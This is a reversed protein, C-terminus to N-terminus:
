LDNTPFGMNALLDELEVKTTNLLEIMNEEKQEIALSLAVGIRQLVQLYKVEESEHQGHLIKRIQSIISDVANLIHRNGMNQVDELLDQIFSLLDGIKKSLHEKDENLLFQKFNM